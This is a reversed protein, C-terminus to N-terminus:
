ENCVQSFQGLLEILDNVSTVGDGNIDTPCPNVEPLICSGDDLNAEDDYNDAGEYTCGPVIPAIAAGEGICLNDVWFEQGGIELKDVNGHLVLRGNFGITQPGSSTSQIIPNGIVQVQVGGLMLPAAALEGYGNFSSYSVGNIELVEFGGFDLIDLCVSDTTVSDLDFTVTANNTHLVQGTGFAAWPSVTVMNHVYTIGYLASNLEDVYLDIGNDTYMYSGQPIGNTAGWTEGLPKAEFDVLWDCDVPCVIGNATIIETTDNANTSGDDCSSDDVTADPDYNSAGPDTCGPIIGEGLCNYGPVAYLCPLDPDPITANPNYNCAEADM